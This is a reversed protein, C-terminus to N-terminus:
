KKYGVGVLYLGMPAVTKDAVERQKAQLVEGAWAPPRKGEGIKLLVGTINRVMSHLFGGARIDMTIMDGRRSVQCHQLNKIPSKAQCDRGRFSSFDHEGLLFNAGAQMLDVELPAPHWLVRGELVASAVRRNFIRMEYRRFIADFRAHFDDAVPHAELIRIDKPLFHNLGFVYEHMERQVTTDFHAMQGEAHVGQDTRGAATITVREGLFAALAQEITQQVSVVDDQRQWGHYRTGLYEIKLVIRAM